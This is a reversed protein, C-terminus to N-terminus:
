KNWILDQSRAALRQPKKPVPLKVKKVAYVIKPVAMQKWMFLEEMRDGHGYSETMM